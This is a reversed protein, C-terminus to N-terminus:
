KGWDFSIDFLVYGVVVILLAYAVLERLLARLRAADAPPLWGAAPLRECVAVVIPADISDPDIKCYHEVLAHVTAGCKPCKPETDITM